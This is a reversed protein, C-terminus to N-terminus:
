TGMAALMFFRRQAQLFQHIELHWTCQDDVSGSGHTESWSYRPCGWCQHAFVWLFLPFSNFGLHGFGIMPMPSTICNPGERLWRGVAVECTQHPRTTGSCATAHSRTQGLHSSPMCDPCIKQLDSCTMCRKGFVIASTQFISFDLGVLEYTYIEYMKPPAPDWGDVNQTCTM